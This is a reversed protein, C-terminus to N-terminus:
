QQRDRDAWCRASSRPGRATQASRTLNMAHNPLGRAVWNRAWIPFAHAPPGGLWYFPGTPRMADSAFHFWFVCGSPKDLLKINVGVSSRKGGARTAKLQIHRVVSQHELVVDYGAADVEARLVEVAYAHRLWLDRLIEGVLQHELVRERYSSFRFDAEDDMTM